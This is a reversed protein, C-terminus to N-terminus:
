GFLRFGTAENILMETGDDTYRCFHGDLRFPRVGGAAKQLRFIDPEFGGGGVTVTDLLGHDEVPVYGKAHIKLWAGNKNPVSAPVDFSFCPQGDTPHTDLVGVIPAALSDPHLTCSAGDMPDPRVYRKM